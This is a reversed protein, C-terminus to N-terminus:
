TGISTTPTTGVAVDIGKEKEEGYSLYGMDADIMILIDKLFSTQKLSYLNM